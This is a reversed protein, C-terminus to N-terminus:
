SGGRHRTGDAFPERGCRLRAILKYIPTEFRVGRSRAFDGWRSPWRDAAGVVSTAAGGVGFRVIPKPRNYNAAMVGSHSIRFLSSVGSRRCSADDLQLDYPLDKRNNRRIGPARDDERDIHHRRM